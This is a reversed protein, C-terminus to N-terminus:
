DTAVAKLNNEAAQKETSERVKKKQLLYQPILNANAIKEAQLQREPRLEKKLYQEILLSAMPAAWTAGFGGSNEIAVAIAITPTDKPAFAIFLSHNPLKVVAGNVLQKNEVTGTKACIKVGPIAASRATGFLVVDEMADTIDQYVSAPINTVVHKKKYKSLIMEEDENSNDISNVFHPTYYYGKNAIITTLNLLQLPTLSLEGQGIGLSSINCSNWRSIFIRNYRISDPVYGSVEYPLDVQLKRGLGFDNLYRKWAALGQAPDNYKKNDVIMRFLHYFYSNCSNSIALRLNAAHGARGHTCSFPKGCYTYAGYCNFGSNQTIVGEQLGIIAEIPKFTSGPSYTGKICRNLLPSTEDKFLTSFNVNRNQGTLLNPDYVPGSAMAIISGTQPDCAVISGIKNQLLQEALAQIPLSISTRLNKGPLAPLDKSGGEYAGIQRNKNDRIVYSIGKVGKLTKEYFNELGSLGIYDGLAYSNHKKLIGSDVEGVYGLVSSGVRSPYYRMTREELEVGNFQHMNEQLKGLIKESFVIQFIVPRYIGNKYILANLKKKFSEIDIELISCFYSTDMNKFLKPTIVLYYTSMNNLLPKDERDFIIGRDPYIIKKYVANEFAIIKYKSTIVQLYFFRLFVISISAIVFLQLIYSRQAGQQPSFM